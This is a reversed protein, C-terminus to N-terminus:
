RKGNHTKPLFSTTEMIGTPTWNM